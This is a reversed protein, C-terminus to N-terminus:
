DLFTGSYSDNEICALIYERATESLERFSVSEGNMTIEFDVNWCIDKYEEM